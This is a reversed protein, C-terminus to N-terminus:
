ARQLMMKRRAEGKTENKERWAPMITGPRAGAGGPWGTTGWVEGVGAQRAGIPAAVAWTLGARTEVAFSAGM